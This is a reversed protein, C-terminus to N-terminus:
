EDNGKGENKICYSGLDQQSNNFFADQIAEEGMGRRRRYSSGTEVRQRLSGEGNTQLLPEPTRSPESDDGRSGVSLLAGSIEDM